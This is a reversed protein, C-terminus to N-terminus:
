DSTEGPLLPLFLEKAYVRIQRIQKLAETGLKVAARFNEAGGPYQGKDFTTLIEIAKDIKM